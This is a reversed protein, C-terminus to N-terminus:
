SSLFMILVMRLIISGSGLIFSWFRHYSNVITGNESQLQILDLWPAVGRRFCGMMGVQEGILSKVQKM